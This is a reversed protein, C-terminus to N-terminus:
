LNVSLPVHFKIDWIHALDPRSRTESWFKWGSCSVTDRYDHPLSRLALPFIWPREVRSIWLTLAPTWVNAGTRSTKWKNKQMTINWTVKCLGLLHRFVLLQKWLFVPSALTDLLSYGTVYVELLSMFWSSSCNIQWQLCLRHSVLKTWIM